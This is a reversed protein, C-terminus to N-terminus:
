CGHLRLCGGLPFSGLNWSRVRSARGTIGVRCPVERRPWKRFEGWEWHRVFVKQWGEDGIMQGHYSGSPDEFGRERLPIVRICSALVMPTDRPMGDFFAQGKFVLDLM